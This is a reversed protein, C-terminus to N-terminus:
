SSRARSSWTSRSSPAASPPRSNSWTRWRRWWPRTWSRGVRSPRPPRPPRPRAGVRAPPGPRRDRVSERSGRPIGPLQARPCRAPGPLPPRLDQRRSTLGDVEFPVVRGDYIALLWRIPRVFRFTGEGWRMFKPFSLAGLLKPLLRALVDRTRGGQEEQFRGSIRRAGARPGALVGRRGGPGPRIGRRGQDAQGEADFAAAKPPGIVERRVDAQREALGDVFLTLRRPTGLTRITDFALRQEALLRRAAAKLEELAPPLYGSPIEETGIEFLLEKGM